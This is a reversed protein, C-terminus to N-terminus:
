IKEPGVFDCFDFSSSCSDLPFQFAALPGAPESGTLSNASIHKTKFNHVGNENGELGKGLKCEQHFFKCNM